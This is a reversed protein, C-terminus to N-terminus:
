QPNQRSSNGGLRWSAFSALFNPFQPQREDAIPFRWDAIPLAQGRESDGAGCTKDTGGATAPPNKAVSKV